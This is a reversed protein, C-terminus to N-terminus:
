EHTSSVVEFAHKVSSLMKGVVEQAMTANESDFAPEFNCTIKVTGKDTDEITVTVKAM